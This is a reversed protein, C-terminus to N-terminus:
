KKVLDKVLLYIGAVTALFSLLATMLPQELSLWDDVKRGILAGFAITVGLQIAMGSYRAYSKMGASRSSKAQKSESSKDQQSKKQKNEM